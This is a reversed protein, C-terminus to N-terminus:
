GPLDRSDSGIGYTVWAGMSPRGAQVSGTNMFLKAPAHNFVDTAMSRVLTIDDVITATHPFLDSVYVGGRGHRTFTRRTGLLKPREKAFTSAPSSRSPSRSAM